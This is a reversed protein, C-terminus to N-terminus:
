CADLPSTSSTLLEPAPRGRFLPQAPHVRAGQEHDNANKPGAQAALGSGFQGEIADPRVAIEAAEHTQTFFEGYLGCIKRSTPPSPKTPRSPSNPRFRWPRTSRARAPCSKSMPSPMRSRNGPTIAIPPPLRRFASRPPKRPGPQTPRLRRRLHRKPLLLHKRQRLRNRGTRKPRPAESGSAARGATARGHPGVASSTETSAIAADILEKAAQQQDPVPSQAQDPKQSRKQKRRGSKTGPKQQDSSSMKGLSWQEWIFVFDFVGRHKRQFRPKSNNTARCQHPSMQFRAVKAPRHRRNARNQSSKRRDGPSSRRPM